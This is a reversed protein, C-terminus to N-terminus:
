RTRVVECDETIHGSARSSGKQATWYAPQARSLLNTLHPASYGPPVALRLAEVVAEVGGCDNIVRVTRERVLHRGPYSVLGYEYALDQTAELSEHALLEPSEAIVKLKGVEVPAGAEANGQPQSAIGDQLDTFSSLLGSAGEEQTFIAIGAAVIVGAMLAFVM